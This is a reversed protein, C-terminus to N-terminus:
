RQRTVGDSEKPKHDNLVCMNADRADSDVEERARWLFPDLALMQCWTSRGFMTKDRLESRTTKACVSGRAVFFLKRTNPGSMWGRITNEPTNPDRADQKPSNTIPHKTTQKKRGNKKTCTKNYKCMRARAERYKNYTCTQVRAERYKNYTYTHARAERYKNKQITKKKQARADRDKKTPTIKPPPRQVGSVGGRNNLGSKCAFVVLLALSVFSPVMVWFLFGTSTEEGEHIPYIICVPSYLGVCEEQFIVLFMSTMGRYPLNGSAGAARLCHLLWGACELFTIM